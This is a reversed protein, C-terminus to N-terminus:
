EQRNRGRETCQHLRNRAAANFLRRGQFFCRNKNNSSYASLMANQESCVTTKRKHHGDAAAGGAEAQQEVARPRRSNSHAPLM